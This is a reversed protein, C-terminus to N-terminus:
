QRAADAGSVVAPALVGQYKLIGLIESESLGIELLRRAEKPDLGAEALREIIRKEGLNGAFQAPRMVSQALTSEAARQLSSEPLGLPGLVQRLVNQSVMNQGTPSGVARGVEDANARRALQEGIQKLVRQQSPDLVKDLKAGSFGTAQAALDDGERLAQAYAQPRIRANAGFDALAPQLKDRLVQGIQMQNIPRSGERFAERAAKYDPVNKDIWEVLKNRTATVARAEHAGIGATKPDDAIDDMAMKLYHLTKGSLEPGPDAIEDGAEAALKGARAWASTMSPRALLKGLESDARVTVAKAAEYLPDAAADRAAKAASMRSSDGAIGELADMIANKNGQARNAFATSLEPNNKLTRELQALGANNAVEATSPQVGPLPAPANDIADLAAKAAQPGGAFTTLTRAAIREQGGKTFPEFLSKAGRYGAVAGRGALTAVPGTAAGLGINGLTEGTSVSPQLAGTVAGTVAAGALTNAGPVFAAPAANAVAGLINGTKAAKTGMLDADRERASAVDDRSVLGLWQGAGRGLDVAAKGYGARFNQFDSTSLPGYKKKFEPSEPDYEEPNAGRVYGVRKSFDKFDLQSYFKDHLAHALEDDSLADYQPYKKRIEELKM